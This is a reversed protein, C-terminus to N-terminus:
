IHAWIRKGNFTSLKMVGNEKGCFRCEIKEKEGDEIAECLECYFDKNM